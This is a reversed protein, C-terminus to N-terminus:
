QIREQFWGISLLCHLTKQKLSCCSTGSLTQVWAALSGLIVLGVHKDCSWAVVPLPQDSVTGAPYPTKTKTQEKSQHKILDEEMQNSFNFQSLCTKLGKSFVNYSKFLTITDKEESNRGAERDQNTVGTVNTFSPSTIGSKM